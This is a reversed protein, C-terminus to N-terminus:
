SWWWVGSCAFVSVYHFPFPCLYEQVGPEPAMKQTNDTDSCYMNLLNSLNSKQTENYKLVYRGNIFMPLQLEYVIM